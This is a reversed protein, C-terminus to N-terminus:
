HTDFISTNMQIQAIQTQIGDQRMAVVGPLWGADVHGAQIFGPNMMHGYGAGIAGTQIPRSGPSPVFGQQPLTYSGNAQVANQFSVSRPRIAVTNIPM